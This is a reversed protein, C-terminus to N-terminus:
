SLIAGKTSAYDILHNSGRFATVSTTNIISSGDGLWKLAEKTLYFMSLVNTRFVKEIEQDPIESLSDHHHQEAANNVLVDLKGFTDITKQVAHRCFESNGIDGCLVLSKRGENEILKRTDDADKHEDLYAIVVDAGERAFHVAIARGIGSDGGTILAVKNTLKGSGIYGQRIYEPKPDMKYERGPQVDQHQPPFEDPKNKM